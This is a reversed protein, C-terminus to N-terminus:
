PQHAARTGSRAARRPRRPRGSAPPGRKPSVWSVPGTVPPSPGAPWWGPEDRGRPPGTRPDCFIRRSPTTPSCRGSWSSRPANRWRRPRHWTEEGLLRYAEENEPLHTPDPGDLRNKDTIVVDNVDKGGKLSPLIRDPMAKAHHGGVMLAISPDLLDAIQASMEYTPALLDMAAWRPGTENVIRATEEIGLGFAETDLVGVNFGHQQAYTAIYAMGLVPLTYDNTRPQLTYDRLPANIFLADLARTNDAGAILPLQQM